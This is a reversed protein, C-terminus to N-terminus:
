DRRDTYGLAAMLEVESRIGSQFLRVLSAARTERDIDTDDELQMRVFVARLFAVDTSQLAPASKHLM